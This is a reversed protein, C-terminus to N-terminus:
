DGAVHREVSALTAHIQAATLLESVGEVSEGADAAKRADVLIREAEKYHEYRTAVTM